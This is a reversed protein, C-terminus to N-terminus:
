CCTPEAPPVKVAIGEDVDVGGDQFRGRSIGRCFEVRGRRGVASPPGLNPPSPSRDPSNSAKGERKASSRDSMATPDGRSERLSSPQQGVMNGLLVPLSELLRSHTKSEEALNNM